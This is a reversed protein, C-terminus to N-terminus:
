AEKVVTRGPTSDRAQLARATDFAYSGLVEELKAGLRDIGYFSVFRERRPIGEIPVDPNFEWPHFYMTAPINRANLSRIGRALVARPLFRAYFGGAVPLRFRPHFVALPLELLTDTDPTGEEFPAGTAPRYPSVPAGSVGYIPTRVPFVSSDYAFGEERLVEFAWDTERSISFNPARFGTPVVGAADEIAACSHRLERRFSAPDLDFLPTHTHGHTAIEHGEARVDDILQPYERAVEGIVFFTAVTDQRALIDLVIRTSERIRDVPDAVHGELLTASHWHELDFSLVNSVPSDAV